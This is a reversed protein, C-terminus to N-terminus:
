KMDNQKALYNEHLKTGGWVPDQRRIYSQKLQEQGVFELGRIVKFGRM